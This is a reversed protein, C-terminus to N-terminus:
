PFNFGYIDDKVEYGDVASFRLKHLSTEIHHFARGLEKRNTAKVAIIMNHAGHGHIREVAYVRKIYHKTAKWEAKEAIKRLAKDFVHKEKGSAGAQVM